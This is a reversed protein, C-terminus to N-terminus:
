FIELTPILGDLWAELGEAEIRAFTWGDVGPAGGNSRALTYAHALIDPRLIKDYLQYFRFSPEATAKGYLKRQFTRVKEPTTLSM